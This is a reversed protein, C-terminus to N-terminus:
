QPRAANCRICNAVETSNMATCVLGNKVKAKCRWHLAPKNARSTFVAVLMGVIAVALNLAIFLPHIHWGFVELVSNALLMALAVIFIAKLAKM